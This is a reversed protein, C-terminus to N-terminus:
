QAPCIPGPKSHPSGVASPRCEVWPAIREARLNSVARQLAIALHKRNSSPELAEGFVLRAEVDRRGLLHFLHTVFTAEGWYSVRTGADGRGTRYGLAAPQVVSEPATWPELLSSRFPLIREGDSTTGEPFLLIPRECSRARLERVLRATDHSSGRDVFLTDAKRLLPGILPWSAVERKCVFTGPAHAGLVLVDVYSLHNAAILGRTPTRGFVTVDIQLIELLRRCSTRMWEDREDPRTAAASEDYRWHTDELWRFFHAGGVFSRAWDFLANM